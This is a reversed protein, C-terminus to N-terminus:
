KIGLWKAYLKTKETRDVIGNYGGNIKRTIEKIVSDSIGKDAIKWLNNKDFFWKASDFSYKESVQDPNTIITQDKLYKSFEIYNNKLSLQIAGRGRYKWGDGSSEPGNGMRGGYVKNAIKEPQRAYAKALPLTPFYKPFVRLLGDASYNLNEVYVTFNGSEHSCQAAFHVAQTDTLKFYKSLAKLTEPGFVGDAKVGIKKQFHKLSM